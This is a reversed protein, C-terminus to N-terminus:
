RKKIIRKKPSAKKKSRDVKQLKISHNSKIVSGNLNPKLSLDITYPLLEALPLEDDKIIPIKLKRCFTGFSRIRRSYEPKYNRGGTIVSIVHFNISTKINKINEIVKDITEGCSVVDIFLIVNRIDSLRQRLIDHNVEFASSYQGSGRTAICYSSIATRVAVQSAIIAGWFDLGIIMSSSPSQVNLSDIRKKSKDIISTLIKGSNLLPNMAVWGLSTNSNTTRFRGFSYLNEKIIKNIIEDEIEPNILEIFNNISLSTNSDNSQEPAKLVGPIVTRITTKESKWEINSPSDDHTHPECRITTVETPGSDSIEIIRGQRRIQSPKTTTTGFRGTMCYCVQGERITDPLHTDGFFWCTAKASINNIRNRLQSAKDWVHKDDFNDEEGYMSNGPFKELPYHCGILLISEKKVKSRIINVITDTESDILNGPKTRSDNDKNIVIKKLLDNYNKSLNTDLTSDISLFFLDKQIKVFSFRDSTFLPKKNAYSQSFSLFPERIELSNEGNEDKYKYDHNGICVGVQKKNIGLKKALYDVVEAVYPFNAVNGQDVFDGTLLVFDIKEHNKKVAVVFGDIYEHYFGKRLHEDVGHFDHIHLDTIHLVIKSM